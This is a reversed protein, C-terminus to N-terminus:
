GVIWREGHLGAAPDSMAAWWAETAIEQSAHTVVIGRGAPDDRHVPIGRDDFRDSSVRKAELVYDPRILPIVPQGDGEGWIEGNPNVHPHQKDILWRTLETPPLRRFCSRPVLPMAHNAPFQVLRLKVLTIYSAWPDVGGNDDRMGERTGGLWALIM